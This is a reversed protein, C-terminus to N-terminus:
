LLTEILGLEQFHFCYVILIIIISNMGILDYQIKTYL